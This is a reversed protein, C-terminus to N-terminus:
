CTLFTIRRTPNVSYVTEISQYSQDRSRFSMRRNHTLCPLFPGTLSIITKLRLGLKKPHRLLGQFDLNVILSANNAKEITNIIFKHCSEAM